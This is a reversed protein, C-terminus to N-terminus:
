EGVRGFMGGGENGGMGVDAEMGACAEAASSDISVDNGYGRGGVLVSRRAGIRATLAAIPLPFCISCGSGPRGAAGIPLALPLKPLFYDHDTHKNIRPLTELTPVKTYPTIATM